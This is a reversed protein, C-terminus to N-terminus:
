QSIRRRVTSSGRRKPSAGVLPDWAAMAADISAELARLPSGDQAMVALGHIFTAYFSVMADVPARASLDGEKVGRVFRQRLVDPSRRRMARLYEYADRNARTCTPAGVVILCGRSEGSTFQDLSARLMAEIGARATPASELAQIAPMGTENCYLDVAERFLADKSGFAAYFSPPTLGGMAELLEELTAGDFGRGRFVDLARRLAHERDFTRPRGRAAM